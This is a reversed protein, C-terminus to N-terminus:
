CANAFEVESEGTSANGNRDMIVVAGELRHLPCM